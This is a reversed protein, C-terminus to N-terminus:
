LGLAVNLEAVVWQEELTVHDYTFQLPLLGSRVLANIREADRSFQRRDGRHWRYGLVEGVVRSGPFHFDVRILKAKSTAVVQQTEPRPLDHEACIQLFRRELWSHGGRAVENGEIVDLLKPLGHRGSARLEAIRHHLQDETFKRDRLGGDLAATLVAPRVFRSVDILTRVPALVAIGLIRTRDTAPLAITTHVVHPPRDVFRGRPVTVHFPPRLVFRDMGHLAAATPGSAVAGDGADLVLAALQGVETREVFPSLLVHAGARELVGDDIRQRIARSTLGAARAQAASVNGHQHASAEALPNMEGNMLRDLALVAGM